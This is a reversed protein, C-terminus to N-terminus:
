PLFAVAAPVQPSDTVKCGCDLASLLLHLTNTGASLNSEGSMCNLLQQRPFPVVWLPSPRGVAMLYDPCDGISIGVPWTSCSLEETFSEGPSELNHSTSLM